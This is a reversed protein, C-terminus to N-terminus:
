AAYNNIEDFLVRGEAAFDIPECRSMTYRIQNEGKYERERVQVRIVFPRFKADDIVSEYMSIDNDKMQRMENATKGLIVVGSEDFASMWQSGTHDAIKLNLIYRHMVEDDRLQRDMTASHWLGPSVQTVKKKSEPDSPYSIEGDSKLFSVFGRMAFTASGGGGGGGFVPEVDEIRAEELSKRDGTVKGGAGSRGATLSHMPASAGGQSDYWARLQNAEPVNVPDLELATSRYVNLCVGGFDGRAANKILIVPHRNQDEEKLFNEAQNRWLTLEVSASSDDCLTISRKKCPENTSRIIIEDLPGVSQVIALVDCTGKVEIGELNAIKTFNYKVRITNGDDPLESFESRRDLTMEYQSTSRNWKPNAHKLTGGRVTYMRGIHVTEEVKPAHETFGTIRISGSEDTLEFSIVQGEGRANQFKRIDSKFTCRGRITWGNQYPNISQIQRYQKTPSSGTGTMVGSSSRGYANTPETKNMSVGYANSPPVANWSGGNSSGGFTGGNSPQMPKAPANYMPAGGGVNTGPRGAPDPKPGDVAVPNGIRNPPASVVDLNLIIIIRKNQVENCIYDNLRVLCNLQILQDSVLKNLQTALMAQQYKEGDSVALRFRPPSNPNATPPSIRKLETIQLVPRMSTDKTMYIHTVAGQTIEM